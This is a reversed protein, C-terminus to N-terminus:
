HHSDPTATPTPTPTASGGSGGGGGHDDGGPTPTAQSTPSSQGGGGDDGGHGGHGSDGGHDDGSRNTAVNAVLATTGDPNGVGVSYSGDRLASGAVQAVIMTASHSVITGTSQGDVLLVAGPAFGSGQITITWTYAGDHSSGAISAHAVAPVTDGLQGLIQTADARVSWSLASSPLAARLDHRWRDRLMGLQAVLADREAGSPVGALEASAAREEDAFTALADRYAQEGSRSGVATDFAALADQAYRLHLRVREAPSTALKSRIEQEIRLIAYLPQGPAAHAVAVALTGIGMGVILLAAVAQWPPRSGNLGPLTPLGPFRKGSRRQTSAGRYRPRLAIPAVRVPEDAAGMAESAPEGTLEDSQGASARAPTLALGHLGNDRVQMAFRALLQAELRDAFSPSPEAGGWVAFRDAAGLLDTVEPSPADARQDAPASIVARHASLSNSGDDRQRQSLLADLRAELSEDPVM